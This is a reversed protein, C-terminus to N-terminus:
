LFLVCLLSHFMLLALLNRVIVLVVQVELSEGQVIFVMQLWNRLAARGITGSTKSEYRYLYASRESHVYEWRTNVCTYASCLM